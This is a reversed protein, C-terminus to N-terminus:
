EAATPTPAICKALITAFHFYSLIGLAVQDPQVVQYSLRTGLQLGAITALRAHLGAPDELVM